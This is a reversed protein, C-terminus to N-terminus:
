ARVAQRRVLSAFARGDVRCAQPLPPAPRRLAEAAGKVVCWQRQPSLGALRSAWAYGAAMGLYKTVGRGHRRALWGWNRTALHLWRESKHAAAPSDHWVIWAPDFWVDHGAALLKLALDTDNRYLFFRGEYGEVQRWAETRVLNGCGMLPWHGQAKFEHRWEPTKSTPHAPLLAVAAIDPTRDLLSLAQPLAAADPWSDDDLLLLREGKALSAGHNFTEVGANSGHHLWRAARFEDQVMKESGDSSHNDAVIVEASELLGQSRLETLTRRLAACRNYSLIVISLSAV